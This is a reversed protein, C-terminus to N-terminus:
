PHLRLGFTKIQHFDPCFRQSGKLVGQFDSCFHRGIHKSKFTIAPVRISMFSKKQLDSIQFYGAERALKPSDPCFEKAGGFM